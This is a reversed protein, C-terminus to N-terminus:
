GRAINMRQYMDVPDQAQLIATGVLVGHAGADFSRKVDEPTQIGSESLIFAHKPASSVLQETRSVTGDDLELDVINRNNIGVFTLDLHQISRIEEENHTEVLPELGLSLADEILQFLQKQELMAAILLVASAGIEKTEILDRKERIFDKRLVPVKTEAAINELLQPSGGFHEPETVVSLVRAGGQVLQKALAAPDRGRLLDGEKPSICKIDPIVPVRGTDYQSWLASTYPAPVRIKDINVM